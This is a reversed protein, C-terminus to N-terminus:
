SVDESVTVAESHVSGTKVRHRYVSRHKAMPLIDVSVMVDHSISWRRRVGGERMGVCLCVCVPVESM